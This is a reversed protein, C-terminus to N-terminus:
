WDVEVDGEDDTQAAEEDDEFDIDYVDRDRHVLNETFVPKRNIEEWLIDKLQDIGMGAVSSIFVHPIDPLDQRLGEELEEDILDCKTIALVRQKNLM